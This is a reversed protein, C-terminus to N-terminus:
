GTLVSDLYSYSVYFDYWFTMNVAWAYETRNLNHTSQTSKDQM